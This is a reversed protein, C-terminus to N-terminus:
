KNAPTNIVGNDVDTIIAELLSIETVSSKCGNPDQKHNNKIYNLRTKKVGNLYNKLAGLYNGPRPKGNNDSANYYLEATIRQKTGDKFFLTFSFKQNFDITLINNCFLIEYGDMKPMTFKDLEFGQVDEGHIKHRDLTQTLALNVLTTFDTKKM